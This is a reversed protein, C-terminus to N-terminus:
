KQCEVLTEAINNLVPSATDTTDMMQDTSQKNNGSSSNENAREAMLINENLNIMQTSDHSPLNEEISIANTSKGDKNSNDQSM